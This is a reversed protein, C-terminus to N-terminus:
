GPPRDPRHVALTGEVSAGDALDLELEVTDVNAWAAPGTDPLMDSLVLLEAPEDKACVLEFPHSLVTTGDHTAFRLAGSLTDDRGASVTARVHFSPAAALGVRGLGAVLPVELRPVPRRRGVGFLEICRGPEAFRQAGNWTFAEGHEFAEDLLAQLDTIDMLNIHKPEVARQTLVAGCTREPTHICLAGDPALVRRCERLVTRLEERSVHEVFDVMFIADQSSPELHRGLTSADITLFRAPVDGVYARAIEMAAESYDILTVDVGQEGLAKALEGRGSGIDTVRQQRPTLALAYTRRMNLLTALGGNGERFAAHGAVHHTYYERTYLHHIDLSTPSNM